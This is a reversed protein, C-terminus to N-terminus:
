AAHAAHGGADAREEHGGHTTVAMKLFVLTLLCFVLGQIFGVFIELGLFPLPAVYPMLAFIVVLLVEGAFINGFLRFTFSIMKAFEAVLELIGVFCGVPDRWPAVFFKGAYPMMGLAAIGFAQTAVVSIIAIALTMNVDANMSRFIPINMLHGDHMGEITISNVGPLIGMWNAITIFILITAVLPFFRRTAKPDQVISDFFDFLGEILMEMFAQFRGPIEKYKTRSLLLGVGILLAMALWAMVMTNRLEFAGIHAITESALTPAHVAIAM